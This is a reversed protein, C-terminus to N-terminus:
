ILGGEAAFVEKFNVKNEYVTCRHFIDATYFQSIYKEIIPVPPFEKEYVPTKNSDANNDIYQFKRVRVNEIYVRSADGLICDRL